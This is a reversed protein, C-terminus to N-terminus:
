IGELFSVYMVVIVIKTDTITEEKTIMDVSKM